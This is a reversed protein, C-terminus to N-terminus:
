VTYLIWELVTDMRWSWTISYPLTNTTFKECFDRLFILVTDRHSKEKKNERGPVVLAQPRGECPRAACVLDLIKATRCSDLPSKKIRLRQLTKVSPPSNFSPRQFVLSVSLLVSWKKRVGGTVCLCVFCM